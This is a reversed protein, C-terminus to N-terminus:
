EFRAYLVLQSSLNFDLAMQSVLVNELHIAEEIIFFPNVQDQLVTGFTFEVLLELVLRVLVKSLFPTGVVDALHNLGELIEVLFVDHMTIDLRLIEEVRKACDLQTVKSPTHM